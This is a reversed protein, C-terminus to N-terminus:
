FKRMRHIVCYNIFSGAALQPTDSRLEGFSGAKGDDMALWQPHRACKASQRTAVGNM